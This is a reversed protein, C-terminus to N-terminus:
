PSGPPPPPVDMTGTVAGVPPPPPPVDMTGTVAGVPPPPPPPPARGGFATWPAAPPEGPPPPPAEEDEEVGAGGPPKPPVDDATWPDVAFEVEEGGEADVPVTFRVVPGNPFIQARAESGGVVDRPLRVKAFRRVDHRELDLDCPDGKPAKPIETITKGGGGEGTKAEGGTKTPAPTPATGRRMALGSTKLVGCGRARGTAATARVARSRKEEREGGDGDRTAARGRTAATRKKARAAEAHALEAFYAERKKRLDEAM